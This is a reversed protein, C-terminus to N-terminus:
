LRSLRTNICASQGRLLRYDPKRVALQRSHTRSSCRSYRTTSMSSVISTLELYLAHNNVSSFNTKFLRAVLSWVASRERMVSRSVKDPIATRNGLQALLFGRLHLGISYPLRLQRSKM